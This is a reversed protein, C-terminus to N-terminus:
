KTLLIFWYQAKELLRQHDTANITQPSFHFRACLSLYDMFEAIRATEWGQQKLNQEIWDESVTTQEINNHLAFVQLFFVYLHSANKSDLLANLDKELRSTTRQANSNWRSSLLTLLRQQYFILPVILLLTFLWWPLAATTPSQTADERIFNIDQVAPQQPKDTDQERDNTPLQPLKTSAGTRQKVELSIPATKLSTYTKSSVDFFTFTQEPITLTGPQLAQVIFEFQKNGGKYATSLDENISTKSDYYKFSEPLALKPTTIHEFNGKGEITLTLMIPDNTSVNTKDVAATYNTFHGIGDVAGQHPPLPAIDITLPNSQTQHQEINNSVFNFFADFPNNHRQRQPSRSIFVVHFPQITKSGQQLPFLIFKKDLRTCARGQYTDPQRQEAQVEKITCGPASILGGPKSPDQALACEVVPGAIYVSATVPIAQGVVAHKTEAELKCVVMPQENNSGATQQNASATPAPATPHKIAQGDAVVHLTISNSEVASGGANAKIPGITVNGAQKAAVTVHKTIRSSQRGNFSNIEQGHSQAMVRFYELGPVNVSDNDIDTLVVIVDFTEGMAVTPVTKGDVTSTGVTSLEISISGAQM